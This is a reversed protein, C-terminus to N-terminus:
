LEFHLPDRLNQLERYYYLAAPRRGKVRLTMLFEIEEERVDGSLSKDRLFQKLGEEVVNAEQPQQELFEFRRIRGPALQSDLRVEMRFSKLDIAWSDIMPDLFSVCNKLSVNFTDEELIALIAARMQKQSRGSLQAMLRLWEESQVEEKAVSQAVDLLTQTVLRELVGYPEKEFIRRVEARIGAKCKRLVLERSDKFLADTPEAVRKKLEDRRQTEALRSLEEAPVESIAGMKEYLDTRGPAPPAKKGSLLQSVYSETVEIASALDRQELGLERLRLRIM